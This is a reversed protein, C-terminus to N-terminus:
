PFTAINVKLWLSARFLNTVSKVRSPHLQDTFTSNRILIDAQTASFTLYLGGLHQAEDPMNAVKIESVLIRTEKKSEVVFNTQYFETKQITIDTGNCTINSAMTSFCEGNEDCHSKGYWISKRIYMSIYDCQYSDSIITANHFSVNIIEIFGNNFTLVGNEFIINKLSITHEEMFTPAANAFTAISDNTNWPTCGIRPIGDVGEFTLSKNLVDIIDNNCMLYFNEMSDTGDISIVDGHHVQGIVYGLSQCQIERSKGCSKTDIGKHSVYWTVGDVVAIFYFLLGNLKTIDMISCEM